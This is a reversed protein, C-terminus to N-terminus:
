PLGIELQVEGLNLIKSHLCSRKKMHVESGLDNIHCVRYSYSEYFSTWLDFRLSFNM